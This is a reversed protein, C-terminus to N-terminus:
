PALCRKVNLRDPLCAYPKCCEETTNCQQAYLICIGAGADVMGGADAGGDTMPAGSDIEVVGGDSLLTGGCIGDTSGPATVCPQGSCCDAHTSCKGGKMVCENLGGCVFGTGTGNPLCPLGCCDASSACVKGKLQNPDAVYDECNMAATLCRPVGLIDRACTNNQIVNGACCNATTSCQYAQMRCVEGAAACKNGNTCRGYAAGPAKSCTVKAQNGDPLNASGCCDDNDRCLEGGPRCGSPPQCVNVGTPGYPACMKSCCNTGCPLLGADDPETGSPTCVSGNVTCNAGAGAAVACTGLNAGAAKTCVAGCCETDTTCVDGTQTCYSSQTACVGGKCLKSCCDGDAACSNGGTKCSTNLPQCFGANCNGGCCDASNTCGFGDDICKMNSCKGDAGCSYTCCENGAACAAGPAKCTGVPAACTGAEKDCNSTCCEGSLACGMGATKCAAGDRPDDGADGFTTFGADGDGGADDEGTAGDKNTTPPKTTGDQSSGDNGGDADFLDEPTESGCGVFTLVNVLGVAAALVLAFSRTRNM